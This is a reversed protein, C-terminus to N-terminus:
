WWLNHNAWEQQDPDTDGQFWEEFEKRLAKRNKGKLLKLQQKAHSMAAEIGIELRKREIGETGLSQVEVEAVTKHTTAGRVGISEILDM